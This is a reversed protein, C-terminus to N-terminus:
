GLVLTIARWEHRRILHKQSAVGCIRVIFMSWHMNWFSDHWVESAGFSPDDRVMPLDLSPSCHPLLLKAFEANVNTLQYFVRKHDHCM